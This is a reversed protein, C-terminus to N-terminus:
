GPSQAPSRFSPEPEFSPESGGQMHVVWFGGARHSKGPKIGEEPAELNTQTM